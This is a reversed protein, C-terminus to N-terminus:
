SGPYHQLQQSRYFPNGATPQEPEHLMSPKNPNIQVLQWVIGRNL